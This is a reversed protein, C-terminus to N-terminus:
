KKGTLSAKGYGSDYMTMSESFSNEQARHFVRARIMKAYMAHPNVPRLNMRARDIARVQRIDSIAPDSLPLSDAVKKVKNIIM